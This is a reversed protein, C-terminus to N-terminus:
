HRRARRVGVASGAACNNGVLVAASGLRSELALRILANIDSVVAPSEPKRGELRQGRGKLNCQRYHLKTRPAERSTQHQSQLKGKRCVLHEIADKSGASLM